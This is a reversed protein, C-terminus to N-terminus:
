GILSDFGKEKLFKNCDEVNLDSCYAMCMMTYYMSHEPSPTFSLGALNVLHIARRVSLKMGICLAVLMKIDMNMNTQRYRHITRRAIGTRESLEGVTIGAEAMYFSFAAKFDLETGEKGVALSMDEVKFSGMDVTIKRNEM